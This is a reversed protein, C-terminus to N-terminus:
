PGCALSRPRGLAAPADLAAAIGRAIARSTITAGTVADLARLEDASRHSLSGLWDGGHLFDTIGPTEQHSLLVIRGLRNGPDLTFLTRIPGGYGRLDLRGLRHRGCYDWAAPQLSLDPAARVEEASRGLLEGLIAREAATENRAIPAQTLHHTVALVLACGFAIGTVTLIGRREVM